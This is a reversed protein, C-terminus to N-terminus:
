KTRRIRATLFALGLLMMGLTQPEPVANVQTASEFLFDKANGGVALVSWRMSGNGIDVGSTGSWRLTEGVALPKWGPLSVDGDIWLTPGNVGGGTDRIDTIPLSYNTTTWDLGGAEGGNVDFSSYGGGFDNAGFVIWDWEDNAQWSGDHNDLTLVFDYQFIGSGISSKEYQLSLPTAAANLGSVALAAAIWLGKVM